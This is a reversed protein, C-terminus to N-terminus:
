RSAYKNKKEKRGRSRVAAERNRMRKRQIKLMDIVKPDLKLEKIRCNFDKVPVNLLTERQKEDLTEDQIEHFISALEKEWQENSSSPSSIESVDFDCDQLTEPVRCDAFELSEELFVYNDQSELTEIKLVKQQAKTLTRGNLENFSVELDLHSEGGLISNFDQSEEM